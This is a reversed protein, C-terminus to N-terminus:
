CTSPLSSQGTAGRRWTAASGIAIPSSQGPQLQPANEARDRALHRAVMETAGRVALV